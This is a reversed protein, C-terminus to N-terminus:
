VASGSALEYVEVDFGYRLLATIVEDNVLSLDDLRTFGLRVVESMKRALYDRTTDALEYFPALERAGGKLSVNHTEVLYTEVEIDGFHAALLFLVSDVVAEASPAAVSVEGPTVTHQSPVTPTVIWYASSGEVLQATAAVRWVRDGWPSIARPGISLLATSLRSLIL